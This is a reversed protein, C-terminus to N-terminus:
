LLIPQCIFFFTTEQKPTFFFTTQKQYGPGGQKKEASRSKKKGRALRKGVDEIKVTRFFYPAPNLWFWKSDAHVSAKPIQMKNYLTEIIHSPLYSQTQTFLRKHYNHKTIFRRQSPSLSNLRESLPWITLIFLKKWGFPTQQTTKFPNFELNCSMTYLDSTSNYIYLFVKNM